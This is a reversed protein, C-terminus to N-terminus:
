SGFQQPFRGEEEEKERRSMINARLWSTEIGAHKWANCAEGCRLIEVRKLTINKNIYSALKPPSVFDIKINTKQHFQSIAANNKNLRIDREHEKIGKKLKVKQKIQM